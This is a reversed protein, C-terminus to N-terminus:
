QPMALLDLQFADPINARIQMAMPMNDMTHTTNDTPFDVGDFLVIPDFILPLGITEEDEGGLTAPLSVETLFMDTGLHVNFESGADPTGDGNNDYIGDIRLFIYGSTWGWHMNPSQPALPSSSPYVNPDLHNTFSDIGINFVLRTYADRNLEGVSIEGMDPQILQVPDLTYRNGAIDELALGSFYAQLGTFQVATGNISYTDGAQFTNGDPAVRVSLFVEATKGDKKCSSFLSAMGTLLILSFILRNM